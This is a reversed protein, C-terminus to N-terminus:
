KLNAVLWSAMQPDKATVNAPTFPVRFTTPFYGESSTALYEVKNRLVYDSSAYAKTSVANAYLNGITSNNFGNPLYKDHYFHILEHFIVPGKPSKSQVDRYQSFSTIYVNRGTYYLGGGAGGDFVNITSTQMKTIVDSKVGSTFVKDIDAKILTVIDAPVNTGYNVNFGRYAEIRQNGVNNQLYNNIREVEEQRDPTMVTCGETIFTETASPQEVDKVGNKKCSVVLLCSAVLLTSLNKIKLKKM